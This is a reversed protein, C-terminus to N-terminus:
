ITSCFPVSNKAVAKFAGFPSNAFMTDSKHVFTSEQFYGRIDSAFWKSHLSGSSSWDVKRMTQCLIGWFFFNGHGHIM